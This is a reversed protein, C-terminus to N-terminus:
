TRNAAPSSSATNAGNFYEHVASAATVPVGQGGVEPDDALAIWDGERYLDFIRRYADPVKVAGSEFTCGERDGPANAPLLEKVALTRAETIIMDLTKKNFEKFRDHEILKALGLQEYLVFDVDRREALELAM